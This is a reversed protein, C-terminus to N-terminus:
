GTYRQECSRTRVRIPLAAPPTLDNITVAVRTECAQIQQELFDHLELALAFQREARWTGELSAAITDASAKIGRHRQSALRHPDREGAVIARVTRLETVGTLDFIVSDLRVNLETLAKQMRQVSRAGDAFLWRAQRVYARLPCVADQSPDPRAAAWVAKIPFPDPM